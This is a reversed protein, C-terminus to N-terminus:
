NEFKLHGFHGFRVDFNENLGELVKLLNKLEENTGDHMNVSVVTKKVTPEIKEKNKRKRM